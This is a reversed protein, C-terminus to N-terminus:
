ESTMQHNDFEYHGNRALHRANQIEWQFEKLARLEHKVFLGGMLGDLVGGTLGISSVLMLIFAVYNNPSWWVATLCGTTMAVQAAFHWMRLTRQGRERLMYAAIMDNIEDYVSEPLPTVMAQDPVQTGDGGFAISAEVSFHDSLSVGLEPHRRTMGVEVSQLQCKQHVNSYLFIYDLRKAAPDLANKNISSHRNAKMDKKMQKSWSWTNFISDCTAGNEALSVRVTPVPRGRVKEASSDSSGVASDPKLLRWVDRCPSHAEILRHALSSPLMNFDGMGIVMHGREAAHRMHKAIEWAQATRHCAYSDRDEAEYPAHLHTCFIEIVDKSRSGIRIRASAVGKGVYWDGRYFAAPRGNLPYPYMNSEEIPWASLIVLGSGFFGSHYFKGHPLICTTLKRITLYDEQTWCEQLGVIQPPPTACALQRGIEALRARRHSSIFKLGWCNLSVVRISTPKETAKM